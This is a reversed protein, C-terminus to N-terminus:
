SFVRWHSYYHLYNVRPFERGGDGRDGGVVVSQFFTIVTSCTQIVLSHNFWM